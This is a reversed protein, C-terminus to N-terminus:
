SAAAQQFRDVRCGVHVDGSTSGAALCARVDFGKAIPWAKQSLLLPAVGAPPVDVYIPFSSGAWFLTVRIQEATINVFDLTLYDIFVDTGGETANSSEHIVTCDDWDQDVAGIPVRGAGGHSPDGTPSVYIFQGSAM